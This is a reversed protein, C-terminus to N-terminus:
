GLDTNSIAPDNVEVAFQYVRVDPSFSYPSRSQRVGHLSPETPMNPFFYTIAHCAIYLYRLMSTREHLLLQLTFAILIVYASRTDTAKPMWCAIRIPRVILNPRGLEVINKWM